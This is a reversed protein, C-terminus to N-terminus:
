AVSTTYIVKGRKRLWGFIKISLIYCPASLYINDYYPCPCMTDIARSVRFTCIYLHNLCPREGNCQCPFNPPGKSGFIASHGRESRVEHLSSQVIKQSRPWLHMKSKSKAVTEVTSLSSSPLIPHEVLIMCLLIQIAAMYDFGGSVATCM